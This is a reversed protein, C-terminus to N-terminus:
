RGWPAHPRHGYGGGLKVSIDRLSADKAKMVFIRDRDVIRRPRGLQKGRARANKLGCCVREQILAREFEAMAGVIQFM